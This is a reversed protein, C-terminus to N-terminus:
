RLLRFVVDTSEEFARRLRPAREGLRRRLAFQARGKVIAFRMKLASFDGAFTLVHNLLLSEQPRWQRTVRDGVRDFLDTGPLPYPMTLGLYDLPLSNAFRLTDLVTDDSEGPYCVIFFAGVELGADHATAVAAAAQATTIQKNMLALIRDNGSEIGFFIRFCGAQKMAQATATDFTDVRGLCEWAFRLGRRSIEACIELVRRANLTFVDDAFSIRDYGLALAQEVEDVVNAASRERYSHGFVVNSCFECAYPCGRTSMVTTISYGYARRGFEIYRGNPLLERAPVALRDLETEFPRPPGCAAPDACVSPDACVVGPVGALATGTEFAALLEVMTQEGEGRVVADFHALFAHPECTPLPGGAVLLPAGTRGAPSAGTRAARGAGTRAARGAGTRATRGAGSGDGSEDGSEGGRERLATALALCDDLMTVMCYIGVVTAPTALAKARAEDPSLFTCDLIRVEHGADRLAAAVYAVGLPPFRFRSRDLARRVYPYILLVSTL